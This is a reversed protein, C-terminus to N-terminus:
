SINGDRWEKITKKIWEPLNGLSHLIFGEDTEEFWYPLFYAARGESDSVENGIFHLATKLSGKKDWKVKVYEEKM